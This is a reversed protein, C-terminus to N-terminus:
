VKDYKIGVTKTFTYEFSAAQMAVSTVIYILIFIQFKNQLSM